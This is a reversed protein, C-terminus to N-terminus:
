TRRRLQREISSAASQVTNLFEWDEASAIFPDGAVPIVRITIEFKKTHNKPNKISEASVTVREIDARRKLKQWFRELYKETAVLDSHEIEDEPVNMTIPAVETLVSPAAATLLDRFSLFGTPKQQRNTLVVSRHDSEILHTVLNHARTGSPLTDVMTVAYRRVPHDERYEKEGGRSHSGAVSGESPFRRKLSQAVLLNSLDSRTIIGALAGTDTVLIVRSVGKEKLLQHVEGSTANINATIPKNPKIRSSLAKLTEPNDTLHRLIDDGHIVGIPQEDKGFVPLSYIKSALMHTLADYMTTEPTIMPPVFLVSEVSTSGPLNSSYLTKHKSVLGAFDGDEDYVFVGAHSSTVSPLVGSLTRNTSESVVTGLPAVLEAINMERTLEAIDAM